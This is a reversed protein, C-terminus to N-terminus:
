ATSRAHGAAKELLPLALELTEEAESSGQDEPDVIRHLGDRQQAGAAHVDCPGSPPASASPTSCLPRPPPATPSSSCGSPRPPSWASSGEHPTGRLDVGTARGDGVRAPGLDEFAAVVRPDFQTGAGRRIEEAAAEVSWSEKYPREHVLVDFVDAVAVIRAVLPIDEGRWATRTAAATGASTTTASSGSPSRSCSPRRRRLARARRADAHTKVVEFEEDSSGGPSSCSRTRSRSRASTTCRRPRASWGSWGTASGSGAPWCAALHASASRTSTRTTTATSPPWRWGTCRQRAPGGAARPPAVRGPRRDRGGARPQPARLTSCSWSRACGGPPSRTSRSARASSRAARARGAARGRARAPRARRAAVGESGDLAIVAAPPDGAASPPSSRAASRRRLGRGAAGAARWGPARLRSRRPTTAPM